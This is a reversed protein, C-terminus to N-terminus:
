LRSFDVYDLGECSEFKISVVNPSKITFVTESSIDIKMETSYEVCNDGYILQAPYGGNELLPVEFQEVGSVRFSFSLSAGAQIIDLHVPECGEAAISIRANRESRSSNSFIHLRLLRNQMAKSEDTIEVWDVDEPIVIEIPVNYNMSVSLYQEADNVFIDTSGDVYITNRQEQFVKLMSSAGEGTILLKGERGDPLVNKNASVILQGNNKKYKIWRDATRVSWPINSNVSVSVSTGDSDLSVSEVELNIFAKPTKNCSVAILLSIAALYTSLYKM